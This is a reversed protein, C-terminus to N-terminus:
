IPRLRYREHHHRDSMSISIHPRTPRMAPASPAILQFLIVNELTSIEVRFIRLKLSHPFELIFFTASPFIQSTPCPLLNLLKPHSATLFLAVVLHRPLSVLHSQREPQDALWDTVGTLGTTLWRNACLTWETM